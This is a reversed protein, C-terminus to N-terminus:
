DVAKVTESGVSSTAVFLMSGVVPCTFMLRGEQLDKMRIVKDGGAGGLDVASSELLVAGAKCNFNGGAECTYDGSIKDTIGACETSINGACKTNINGRVNQIINNCKISINEMTRIYLKQTEIDITDRALIEMNELISKMNEAINFIVEKANINIKNARKVESGESNITRSYTNRVEETIDIPVGYKDANPDGVSNARRGLILRTKAFHNMIFITGRRNMKFLSSEKMGGSDASIYIEGPSIEPMKYIKNHKIFMDAGGGIGSTSTLNLPYYGTIIFGNDVSKVLVQTGIPPLILYKGGPNAIFQLMAEIPGGAADKILKVLVQGRWIKKNVGPIYDYVYEIIVGPQEVDIYHRKPANISRPIPDFKGRPIFTRDKFKAAM